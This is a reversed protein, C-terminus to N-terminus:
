IEIGAPEVNLTPEAPGSRNGDGFFEDPLMMEFGAVFNARMHATGLAFQLDPKQDPLVVAEIRMKGRHINTPGLFQEAPASFEADDLQLEDVRVFPFRRDRGETSKERFINPDRRWGSAGLFHVLHETTELEVERHHAQHGHQHPHKEDIIGDRGRHHAALM